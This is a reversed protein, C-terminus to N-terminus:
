SPWTVRTAEGLEEIAVVGAGAARTAIDWSQRTLYTDADISGGGQECRRRLSDLYPRTHVRELEDRGAPRTPVTVLDDGLHLADVGDLAAAM